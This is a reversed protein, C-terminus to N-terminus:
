LYGTPILSYLSVGLCLLATVASSSFDLLAFVFIHMEVKRAPDEEAEYM